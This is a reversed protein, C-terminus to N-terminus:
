YAILTLILFLTSLVNKREAVWAVSEVNLPHLGFLGAVVGSRWVAGTMIQLAWFLLVTNIIHIIVSTAHHGGPRTGYLQCDIAHSIWSLPHWNAVALTTFAWITTEPSLGAKVHVNDIVYENDDYGVFALSTSRWYSAATMLVLLGIIIFKKDPVSRISM